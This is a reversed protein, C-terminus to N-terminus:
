VTYNCQQRSFSNSKHHLPLPKFMFVTYKYQQRSFSNPKRHLPLM